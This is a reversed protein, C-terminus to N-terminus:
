KRAKTKALWERLADTVNDITDLATISLPRNERFDRRLIELQADGRLIFPDLGAAEEDTMPTAYLTAKLTSYTSLAKQFRKAPTDISKCGGLATVTVIFAIILFLGFILNKRFKIMQTYENEYRLPKM